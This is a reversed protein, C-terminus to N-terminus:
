HSPSKLAEKISPAAQDGMIYAGTTNFHIYDEDLDLHNMMLGHRDDISIRMREVFSRAIANRADIRPNTAGTTAEPKVPIITASILKASGPLQSHLGDWSFCPHPLRLFAAGAPCPQPGPDRGLPASCAFKLRMGAHVARETFYQWCAPAVQPGRLRFFLEWRSSRFSFRTSRRNM